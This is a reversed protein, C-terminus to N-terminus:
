LNCFTLEFPVDQECTRAKQSKELVIFRVNLAYKNASVEPACRIGDDLAIRILHATRGGLMLQFLGQTAEYRSAHGSKRLLNLVVDVAAKLPMLPSLWETLDSSRDAEASNLWYHYSPLDFSCVGGPICSRGKIIMLWENDRVHQGIKGSMAYLDALAQNIRGLVEDLRTADVAPNSRLVELTSKQRELEQILESKMEARGTVDVLEFVALLAAHHSRPDKARIFFLAKDFLDELRLWTRIREHLPYEYLIM